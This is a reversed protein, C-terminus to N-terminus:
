VNFARCWFIATRAIRHERQTLDRAHSTSHAQRFAIELRSTFTFTDPLPLSAALKSLCRDPAFMLSRLTQRPPFIALLICKMERYKRCDLAIEQLLFTALFSSKSNKRVIILRLKPGFTVHPERALAHALNVPWRFLIPLTTTFQFRFPLTM